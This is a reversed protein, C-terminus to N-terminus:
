GVRRVQVAPDPRAEYDGCWATRNVWPWAPFGEEGRTPAHRRCESRDGGALGSEEDYQEGYPSRPWFRCQGCRQDAMLGLGGAWGSGWAEGLRKRVLRAGESWLERM